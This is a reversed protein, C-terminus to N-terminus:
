PITLWVGDAERELVRWHGDPLHPSWVVAPQHAVVLRELVAARPPWGCAERYRIWGPATGTPLETGGCLDQIRGSWRQAFDPSAIVEAGDKISAVVARGTHLRVWPVRRPDSLIPRNPEVSELYAIVSPPPSAAAPRWGMWPGQVGAVVVAGTLLVQGRSQNPRSCVQVITWVVPGVCWHWPHLRALGPPLLGLRIGLVASAAAAIVMLGAWAPRAAPDRDNRGRILMITAVAFGVMTWPDGVSLHHDWRAQVVRWWDMSWGTELSHLGFPLLIPAACLGALGGTRVPRSSSSVVMLGAGLGVAPHIAVAVGTWLGAWEARGRLALWWAGLIVPLVASRSLPAVPLVEVWGPLMRPMLVAVGALAAGVRNAGLRRALAVALAGAAGTCILGLASLVGPGEPLCALLDLWLGPHSVAHDAVLDSPFLSPDRRVSVLTQQVALDTHQLDVGRFVWLMGVVWLGLSRATLREM